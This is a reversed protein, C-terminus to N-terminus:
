NGSTSIVAEPETAATAEQPEATNGDNATTIEASDAEVKKAEDPNGAGDQDGVRLTASFDDYVEKIDVGTKGRLQNLSGRLEDGHNDLVIGYLDVFKRMIEERAKGRANEALVRLYDLAGAAEGAGLDDANLILEDLQEPTIADPGSQYDVPAPGNTASYDVDASESNRHGCSTLCFAAVAIMLTITLRMKM